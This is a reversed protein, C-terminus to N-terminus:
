YEPWTETDAALGEDALKQEERLSLKACERALRTHKVGRAGETPGHTLSDAARTARPM